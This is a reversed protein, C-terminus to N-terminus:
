LAFLTGMGGLFGLFLIRRFLGVIEGYKRFDGLFRFKSYTFM